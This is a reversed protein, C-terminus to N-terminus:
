PADDMNHSKLAIGGGPASQGAITIYPNEIVLPTSLEITVAIRFVIIRQGAAEIAARLSGPGSDALTTVEIIKGGRGGIAHAGYGEAGPFAPAPWPITAQQVVGQKAPAVSGLCGTLILTCLM